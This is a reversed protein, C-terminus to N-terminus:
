GIFQSINIMLELVFNSLMCCSICSHWRVVSYWEIKLDQPSGQDCGFPIKNTRCCETM